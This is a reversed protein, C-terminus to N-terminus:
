KTQAYIANGLNKLAQKLPSDPIESLTNDVAEIDPFTKPIHKTENVTHKIPSQFLRLKDVAKYGYYQNIKELIMPESQQILLVWAPSVQLLLVGRYPGQQHFKLSLPRTQHSLRQGIILPWDLVISSITFGRQRFAKTTVKFLANKLRKSVFTHQSM